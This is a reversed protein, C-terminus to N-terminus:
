IVNQTEPYVHIKPFVIWDVISVYITETFVNKKIACSVSSIEIKM